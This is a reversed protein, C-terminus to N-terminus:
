AQSHTPLSMSFTTGEGSRSRVTLSGGHAEVFKRALALGVGTGQAKTTFFLEFVRERSGPDIGPGDDHVDVVVHLPGDPGGAVGTAVTVTGGTQSADIANGIINV